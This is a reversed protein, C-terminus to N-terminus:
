KLLASWAPDSAFTHTNVMKENQGTIDITYLYNEGNRKQRSFIIFRGNPSWTPGEELWSTTLLREGSGDPRMIGIYFRGRNIKTFAIYDGKPSWVPTRYSGDGFSIRSKNSGDRNMIYLQSTGGRNSNFAIKSGDESYSPSTNIVGTDYTLRNAVGTLLDIEYIDTTGDKAVSMIAYHNDPAFRPAFSMGPFNGILKQHGTELDLLYVKAPHNRHKYAMYIVRQSHPDFRPTLVLEKGDTLYKLNGGDQDMIALRKIRNKEDGKEAVFVIRSDFIGQDGTLKEYIRDSIKHAIRRSSDLTITYAGNEFQTEKYPDWLTYEITLLGSDKEFTAKGTLLATANIIRWNQFNPPQWSSPVDLFAANEIPRFVGSNKLNNLIVERVEQGADISDWDDGEFDAIAIPMAEYNGKNIEIKIVAFSSEAMILYFAFYFFMLISKNIRTM